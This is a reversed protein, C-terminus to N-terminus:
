LAELRYETLARISEHTQTLVRARAAGPAAETLRKLDKYRFLQYTTAREAASLVQARTHTRTLRLVGQIV